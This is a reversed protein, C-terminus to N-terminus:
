DHIGSALSHVPLWIVERFPLGCRAMTSFLWRGFSGNLPAPRHCPNRREEIVEHWGLSYVATETPFRGADDKEYDEKCGDSQYETESNAEAVAGPIYVGGYSNEISYSTNVTDKAAM